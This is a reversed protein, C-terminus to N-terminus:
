KDLEKLRKEVQLILVIIVLLMLGMVSFVAALEQRDMLSILIRIIAMAIGYLILLIASYANAEKWLVENKMSRVTRYGYLANIKAPPKYKMFLCAAIFILGTALSLMLSGIM